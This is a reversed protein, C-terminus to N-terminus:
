KDKKMEEAIKQALETNKEKQELEEGATAIAGIPYALFVWWKFLWIFISCFLLCLIGQKPSIFGFIFMYIYSFFFFFAMNTGIFMTPDITEYIKLIIFFLGAFILGSVIRSKMTNSNQNNNQNNTQSNNNTTNQNTNSQNSSKITINNNKMEGKILKKGCYTCFNQNETIEKGCNSCFM